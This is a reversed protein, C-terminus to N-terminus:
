IYNYIAVFHCASGALVFIHFIAHNLHIKKISYTLAGVTYLIGGVLLWLFGENGIIETLPKIFFVIMWGMFVYMLTSIVKFRGTFFIKLSIGILALTWSIVFIIWGQTGGIAGLAFPTYTGAILVYIACHDLVKRKLRLKIDETRHYNTSAAFLIILSLGFIYFSISSQLNYDGLSKVILLILGIIGLIVGAFHSYVNIKEEIKSYGSM